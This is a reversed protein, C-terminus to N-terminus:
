RRAGAAGSRHLMHGNGLRQSGPNGSRYHAQRDHPEQVPLGGEAASCAGLFQARRRLIELIQFPEMLVTLLDCTKGQWVHRAVEEGARAGELYM